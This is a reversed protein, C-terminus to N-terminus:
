AHPDFVFIARSNGGNHVVVTRRQTQGDLTTVVTYRGPPVDALLFPGGAQAQLVAMGRPDLVHVDAGATYLDHGGDRQYVEVALPFGERRQLLAQSERLGVGGTVFKVTGFTQEPPLSENAALAPLGVAVLAAALTGRARRSLAIRSMTCRRQPLFLAEPRRQTVLRLSLESRLGSRYDEILLITSSQIIGFRHM